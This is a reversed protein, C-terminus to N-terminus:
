QQWQGIKLEQFGELIPELEKFETKTLSFGEGKLEKPDLPENDDNAAAPCENWCDCLLRSGKTTTNCEAVM